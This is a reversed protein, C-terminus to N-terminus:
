CIGGKRMVWCTNPSAATWGASSGSGTFASTKVNAQDITYSFGTMSSKGDAKVTYTNATLTPCTLDFNQPQQLQVQVATPATSGFVCGTPYTRNDQFFQEMKVRADALASTAEVTRSRTVYDRYNPVAIAALVAVIAVVIMIEILTFGQQKRAMPFGRKV